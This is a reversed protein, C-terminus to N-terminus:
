KTTFLDNPTHSGMDSREPENRTRDMGTGELEELLSVLCSVGFYTPWYTYQIM